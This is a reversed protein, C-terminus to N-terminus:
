MLLVLGMTRCMWRKWLMRIALWTTKLRPTTGKFLPVKLTIMIVIILFFVIVYEAKDDQEEEEEDDNDDEHESKYRNAISVVM